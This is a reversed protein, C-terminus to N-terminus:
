DQSTFLMVQPDKTWYQKYQAAVWKHDESARWALMQQADAFELMTFVGDPKPTSMPHFQRLSLFGPYKSARKRHERFMEDFRQAGEDTFYHIVYAFGHM